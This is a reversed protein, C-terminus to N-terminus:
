GMFQDQEGTKRARLMERKGPPGPIREVQFGVSQLTRRVVGKACYTVLVGDTKMREYLMEFIAVQWMEPQKEPSFADFYVLDALPLEAPVIELLDKEIKHLVFQANMTTDRNWPATHLLSFLQSGSEPCFGSYDLLNVVQMSLPYKELAFYHIQRRSEQGAIMTLLCNLGTGFGVELVTVEKATVAGLGAGVFVHLSEQVAGFTSHYHEDLGNLYLTSSGDQTVKIEIKM